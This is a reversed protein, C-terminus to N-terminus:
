FRGFNHNLKRFVGPVMLEKPLTVQSILYIDTNLLAENREVPKSRLGVIINHQNKVAGGNNVMQCRPLLGVLTTPHCVIIEVEVVV